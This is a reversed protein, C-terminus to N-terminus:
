GGRCLFGGGLRSMFLGFLRKKMHEYSGALWNTVVCVKFVNRRNAVLM